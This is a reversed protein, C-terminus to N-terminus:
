RAGGEPALFGFEPHGRLEPPLPAELCAQGISDLLSLTSLAPAPSAVAAAAPLSGNPLRPGASLAAVRLPSDGVTAAALAAAAASPTPRM